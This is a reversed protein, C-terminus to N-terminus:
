ENGNEEVKIYKMYHTPEGYRNLSEIIERKVKYGKREMEGIRTALKTIGLDSFAQMPTISGFDEIYKKIRSHQTEM